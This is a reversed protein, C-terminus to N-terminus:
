HSLSSSRRATLRCTGFFIGHDVECRVMGLGLLLSLVLMYFEYAAQRLGYLAVLVRLVMGPTSTPYGPFPLVYLPHRIKAHLFATKCDFKFIDLDQLAAWALLIRVSAMKAVPVYM